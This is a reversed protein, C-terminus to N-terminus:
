STRRREAEEVVARQAEVRSRAYIGLTVDPKSHGALTQAARPDAGTEIWWSIATRRLDYLQIDDPLGARACLRKFTRILNHHDLPTGVESAFVLGHEKWKPGLVSREEQQNDWHAGLRRTLGPPLPLTRKGSPTKSDVVAITAARLDVDAWRLELLEVPRPGLLVLMEFLVALRHSRVTALLIGIAEPALTRDPADPVHPADALMAPNDRILKWKVATALANRLVARVHSVSRASLGAAALANLMRQVHQGSVDGIALRGIHPICYSLHREYFEYTRASVRGKAVDALWQSLFQQVSQRAGALDMGDAIQRNWEDLAKEADKRTAFRATRSRDGTRAIWTNRTKDFQITGSGPKRRQAM